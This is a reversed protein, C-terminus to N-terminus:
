IGARRLLRRWRSDRPLRASVWGMGLSATGVDRHRSDAEAASELRRALGRLLTRDLESWASKLEQAAVCRVDDRLSHLLELTSSRWPWADLTMVRDILGVPERQLLMCIATPAAARLSDHDSVNSAGQQRTRHEGIAQAVTRPEAAIDLARLERLLEELSRREASPIQQLMWDRDSPALGHLMLAASRMGSKPGSMVEAAVADAFLGSV